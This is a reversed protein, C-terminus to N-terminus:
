RNRVHIWGGYTLDNYTCGESYRLPEASEFTIEEVEGNIQESIFKEAAAQTDFYLSTPGDSGLFTTTAKFLKTTYM